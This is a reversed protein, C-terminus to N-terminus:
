HSLYLEHTNLSINQTPVSHFTNTFLYAACGYIMFIFILLIIFELLTPKISQNYINFHLYTCIGVFICGGIIILWQPSGMCICCYVITILNIHSSICVHQILIITVYLFLNFPFKLINSYIYGFFALMLILGLHILGASWFM